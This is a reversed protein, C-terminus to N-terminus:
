ALFVKAEIPVLPGFMASSTEQMIMVWATDAGMQGVYRQKLDSDTQPLFLMSVPEHQLHYYFLRRTITCKPAVSIWLFLFGVM